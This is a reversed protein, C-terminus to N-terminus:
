LGRSCWSFIDSRNTTCDRRLTEKFSYCVVVTGALFIVETQLATCAKRIAQINRDRRPFLRHQSCICLRVLKDLMSFNKM